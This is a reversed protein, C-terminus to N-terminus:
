IRVVPVQHIDESSSSHTKQKKVLNFEKSVLKLDSYKPTSSFSFKNKLKKRISRNPTTEEEKKSKSIKNKPISYNRKELKFKKVIDHYKTDPHKREAGYTIDNKIIQKVKIEKFKSTGERSSPLKLPEQKKLSDM